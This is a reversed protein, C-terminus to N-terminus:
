DAGRQQQLRQLRAESQQRMERIWAESGGALEPHLEDRWCGAAEEVAKLQDRRRIERELLEVVFATRQRQGAIRDIEAAIRSPIPILTRATRM